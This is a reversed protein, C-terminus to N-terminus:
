LKLTRKKAIRMRWRIVGFLAFALPIGFWNLYRVTNKRRTWADREDSQEDRAAQFAEVDQAERAAAEAHEAEQVAAPLELPPDEVNKARIAILDSEQALWDVANLAFAMAGSLDRQGTPDPPPLFEDRVFSSTGAVLVRVSGSSQAPATIGGDEGGDPGTAYASPLTGEIAVILPFPGTDSTPTWERPHRPRLPISDGTIRWSNESSRALTTIEFDGSGGAVEISSTFALVAGPLRFLAPHERQQEDFAVQPVPPYPVAVQMGMPGRMPARSCQWDAVLDDNLRIGWRELLRNLGSNVPVAGPEPSEMTLKIGGGFIGLSGGNMVYQDIRRLEVETLETEPGVILLAALDSDIEADATVERLEYTPLGSNLGTLGETLSPAEHGGLVGVAIREGTLEKIKTTIMYELGSADRILPIAKSEGLYKIVLGRYGEVVTATDEQIDQHSVRRVGDEEAQEQLEDTDPDIFTVHINGNSAAVYEVLLDRVNGETSNFPPPLDESFYATIEMQDELGAAVRQSGDSLSWLRSETLDLRGLDFFYGIANLVVLIATLIALFTLSETALGPQKSQAM